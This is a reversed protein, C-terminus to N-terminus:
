EPESPQVKTTAITVSQEANIIKNGKELDLESDSGAELDSAKM